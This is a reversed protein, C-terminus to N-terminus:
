KNPVMKRYLDEYGSVTDALDFKKLPLSQWEGRCAKRLADALGDVSHEEMTVFRGGIVEQLAARGSTVLPVGLAMTEVAAYCFGESYSPVAVCDSSKVQLQLDEFSLDHLIEVRDGLGAEQIFSHIWRSIKNRFSPIILRLRCGPFEAAIRAFAPLLLDLGKSVGLRGFYTITFDDKAGTETRPKKTEIESHSIGNLIVNVQEPRVGHRKLQDATSHSVAVFRAFSLRLLLKEFRYFLFSQVRSLFPLRFWLKGWVEHFTIIVKKGALKAGLWAPLGANYSTTHVLDCSRAHYWVLPASLLTFLYRNAFPLRVMKLLPHREASIEKKGSATTIVVISHGKELLRLELSKFLTEVGGTKPYYNELVWLLKM